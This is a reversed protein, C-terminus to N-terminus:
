RRFAAAVAEALGDAHDEGYGLVFAPDAIGLARLEDANTGTSGDISPTSLAVLDAPRGLARLAISTASMSHLVGLADPGVLLLLAPDLAVALDLCRANETLPSLAGGATEVLSYIYPSVYDYLALRSEQSEVWASLEKVHFQRKERRAALHPSLAARLEVLPHPEAAIPNEVDFGRADDRGGSEVPKLALTPASKRLSRALACTLRTKGVGTGTGVVVVRRLRQDPM